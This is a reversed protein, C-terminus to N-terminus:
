WNFANYANGSYIEIIVVNEEYYCSMQTEVGIRANYKDLVAQIEARIKEEVGM